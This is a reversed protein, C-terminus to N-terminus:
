PFIVFCRIAKYFITYDNNNKCTASIYFYSSTGAFKIFSNSTEDYKWLGSASSSNGAVAIITYDDYKKLGYFNSNAGSVKLVEETDNDFKLFGISNSTSAGILFDGNPNIPTFNDWYYSSAYKKIVSNDTKKYYFLGTCNSNNSSFLVGNQTEQFFAFDNGSSYLQSSTKSTISYKWLGSNTVNSSILYETDNLKFTYIKTANAFADPVVIKIDGEVKVINITLPNKIIM